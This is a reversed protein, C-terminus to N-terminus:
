CTGGEKEGGGGVDAGGAVPTSWHELMEEKVM